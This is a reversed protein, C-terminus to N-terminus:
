YSKEYFVAFTECPNKYMYLHAKDKPPVLVYKNSKSKKTRMSEMDFHDILGMAEKKDIKRQVTGINYMENGPIFKQEFCAVDWGSNLSFAFFDKLSLNYSHVAHGIEHKVVSNIQEPADLDFILVRKNDKDYAGYVKSKYEKAFISAPIEQMNLQISKNKIIQEVGFLHEQPISSLIYNLIRLDEESFHIDSNRLKLKYKEEIERAIWQMSEPINHLQLNGKYLYGEEAKPRIASNNRSLGLTDLGMAGGIGQSMWAGYSSMNGSIPSVM